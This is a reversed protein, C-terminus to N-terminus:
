LAVGCFEIIQNFTKQPTSSNDLLLCNIKPYNEKINTIEKIYEQQQKVSNDTNFKSHEFVAKDRNLREQYLSTDELILGIVYVNYHNSLENLDENLLNTEDQFNYSKYGLNCYVKESLYFRDLVFTTDTNACNLIFALENKRLAYVKELGTEMSKDKIGSLRMLTSYPIKERLMTTITGKGVGQAGEIIILSPKSM